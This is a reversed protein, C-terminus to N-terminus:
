GLPLAGGNRCLCLTGVDVIDAVALLGVGVVVRFKGIVPGGGAGKLAGLYDNLQYARATIFFIVLLEDL